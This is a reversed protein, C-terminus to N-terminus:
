KGVCFNRFIRDAIDASIDKSDCRDLNKAALELDFGAVDPTFGSELASVASALNECAACIEAYQREETLIEGSDLGYSGPKYIDELYKAIAEFASLQSDPVSNQKASIFLPVAGFDVGGFNARKPLDCKNIVPIIKKGNTKERKLIGLIESDGGEPGSADFVGIILECEGIKALTKKIGLGEIEGYNERIGATDHLNLVFEGTNVRSFVIDRTTGPTEHTIAVEDKSLMNLLTSKGSNPKGVIACNIGDSIIKGIGYTAKLAELEEKIALSKEFMAQSSVDALDEGPYDIFVYVESIIDKIKESIESIKKSLAGEAQMHALKAGTKNAACILRGVAEAGTLSIKGNLYATKTFEGAMAPSAGAKISAGLVANSIYLGGHCSIEVTNEGTYSHPAAFKVAIGRDIGSIDGFVATNPPVSSFHRYKKGGPSFIKAGIEFALPGSIRIVALGGTGKPTAIAAITREHM